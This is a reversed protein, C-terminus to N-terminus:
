KSSGTDLGQRGATTVESDVPCGWKLWSGASDSTMVGVGDYVVVVDLKSGMSAVATRLSVGYSVAEEWAGGENWTKFEPGYPLVISFTTKWWELSPRGTQKRKPLRPHETLLLCRPGESGGRLIAVVSMFGLQALVKAQSVAATQGGPKFLVEFSVATLLPLGERSGLTRGDMWSNSMEPDGVPISIMVESPSMPYYSGYPCLQEELQDLRDYYLPKGPERGLEAELCVAM